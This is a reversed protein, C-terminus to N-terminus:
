IGLMEKMKKLRSKSIPVEHPSGEFKSIYNYGIWPTVKSIHNLNVIYSRHCRFFQQNNLKEELIELSDKVKYKGNKTIALTSGLEATFFLIDDLKFLLIENDEWVAIRESEKKVQAELQDVRSILGNVEMYISSNIQTMNDNIGYFGQVDYDKFIKHINGPEFTCIINDIVNSATKYFSSIGILDMPEVDHENYTINNKQLDLAADIGIKILHLSIKLKNSISNICQQMSLSKDDINVYFQGKTIDKSNSNLIQLLKDNIAKLQNNKERSSKGQNYCTLAELVYRFLHEKDWPKSIFKLIKGDNLANKIGELSAQGTLLINVTHPSVQRVQRLLEDGRVEPMIYDVIMLPVEKSDDLFSRLLNLAESASEAIEINYSAGFRMELQERLSYLVIMEDDVCIINPKDM